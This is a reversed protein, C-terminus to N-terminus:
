KVAVSRFIEKWYGYTSGGDGGVNAVALVDNSAAAFNSLAPLQNLYFHGDSASGDVIDINNDQFIFIKIQGQTGGLIHELAAVGAGNVIVLEVGYAGLDTGVTLSTAGAVVLLDTVGVNGSGSIANIATRDERIYGPIDSVLVQDTPKTADLTM